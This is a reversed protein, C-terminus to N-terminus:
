DRQGEIRLWALGVAAMADARITRPGLQVLQALAEQGQAVEEASWGGEPGVLVLLRPGSRVTGPPVSGKAVFPEVFMVVMQGAHRALVEALVMPAVIEPVVARGCQKASAIAVRRWREAAAGSTWAKKPVDVNATVLPVIEAAGMMTADRVVVDMHDGKLLGAALTVHISPEPVAAVEEVIEVVGSSRKASPALRATWERGRGDFVRVADGAKLRLVRSVHHAEGDPLTATRSSPDLDPVYLRPVSM